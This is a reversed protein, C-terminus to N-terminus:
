TRYCHLAGLFPVLIATSQAFTNDVAYFMATEEGGVEMFNPWAGSSHLQAASDIAGYALAAQFPTQAAGYWLAFVAELLSGTCTMAKRIRLVPIGYKLM